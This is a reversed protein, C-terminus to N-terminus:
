QMKSHYVCTNTKCYYIFPSWTVMTSLLVTYQLLPLYQKWTTSLANYTRTTSLFSQIKCHYISYLQIKITTSPFYKIKCSMQYQLYLAMSEGPLSWYYLFILQEVSLDYKLHDKMHKSFSLTTNNTEITASMGLVSKIHLFPTKSDANRQICYKQKEPGILKVSQRSVCVRECRELKFNLHAIYTM